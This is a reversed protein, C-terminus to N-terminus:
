YIFTLQKAKSSVAVDFASVGVRFSLIIEDLSAFGTVIEVGFPIKM